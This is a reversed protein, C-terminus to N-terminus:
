EKEKRTEGGINEPSNGPINKQCSGSYACGSCGGCGSCFGNGGKKKRSKLYRVAAFVALAIVALAIYDAAGLSSIIEATFIM